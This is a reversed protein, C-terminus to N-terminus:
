SRGSSTAASSPSKRAQCGNAALRVALDVRGPRQVQVVVGGPVPRVCGWHAGGAVRVLVPGPATADLVLHGGQMRVLRAPGSVIGPSGDVAFVRWHADSWALSLGSVGAAILRAEARGAMDLPADPVAVYRVGASLLWARYGAADLRGGYFIPNRAIDLQREWGRALPV